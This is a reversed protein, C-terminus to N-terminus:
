PLHLSLTGQELLSCSRVEFHSASVSGAQWVSSYAKM